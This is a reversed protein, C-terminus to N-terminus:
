SIRTDVIVAEGCKPCETVMAGSEKINNRLIDIQTNADAIAANISNAKALLGKVKALKNLALVDSDEVMSVNSTDIKGIQSQLSRIAYLKNVADRLKLAASIEIEEADAVNMGGVKSEIERLRSIKSLVNRMKYVSESEVSELGNVKEYIKIKSEVTCLVSTKELNSRLRNLIATDISELTSVENYVKLLKDIECMRKISSSIVSLNKAEVLDIPQLNNRTIEAIIGLDSDIQKVKNVLEVAKSLEALIASEKEIREKINVIPEIDHIRIRRVEDMLTESRTENKSLKARLENVKDSGNSIAKTLNEVKLANYMVKYNASAPTIVFLLKDEYTRIHLFEGTEPEKILGMVKQVEVPTDSGDIKSVEWKSGDARDVAYVNSTSSKVRTIVTGDALDLQLGFGVKGDMIYDKQDKFNANLGIVALGLITSTKGCENDGELKVIPSETFDITIDGVNRFNKLRFTKIPSYEM